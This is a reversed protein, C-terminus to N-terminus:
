QPSTGASYRRPIPEYKGVLIRQILLSISHCALNHTCHVVSRCVDQCVYKPAEFAHKLACLEYVVCGQLPFVM